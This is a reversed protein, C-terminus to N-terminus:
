KLGTTKGDSLRPVDMLSTVGSNITPVIPACFYIGRKSNRRIMQEGVRTERPLMRMQEVYFYRLFLVFETAKTQLRVIGVLRGGSPASTLAL